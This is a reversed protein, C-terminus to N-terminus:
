VRLPADTAEYESRPGRVDDVDAYRREVAPLVGYNATAHRNPTDTTRLGHSRRVLLGVVLAILLLLALTGGVAGGILAADDHTTTSLEATTSTSSLTSLMIDTSDTPSSTTHMSILDTSLPTSLVIQSSVTTTTPSITANIGACCTQGGRQTCSTFKNQSVFCQNPDALAPLALMDSFANRSLNLRSLGSQLLLETPITGSLQNDDVRFFVFQSATFIGAHLTGSLQNSAISFWKGPTSWSSFETPLTGSLRNNNVFFNNLQPPFAGVVPLSGSFQNEGLHLRVIEPMESLYASPITGSLRNKTVRFDQMAAASPETPLLGTLNNNDIRLFHLNKQQVLESPITGSLSTNVLFVGVWVDGMAAFLSGNIAGNLSVNEISLMPGAANDCRIFPYSSANGCVDVRDSAEFSNQLPPCTTKPCQLAQLFDGVATSSVFFM